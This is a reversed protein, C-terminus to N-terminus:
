KFPAAIFDIHSVCQQALLVDGNWILLGCRLIAGLQLAHGRNFSSRLCPVWRGSCDGGSSLCKTAPTRMSSWLWWCAGLTAPVMVTVASQLRWGSTGINSSCNPGGLTDLRERVLACLHQHQRNRWHAHRLQRPYQTRQLCDPFLVQDMGLSLTNPPALCSKSPRTTRATQTRTSRKPQTM